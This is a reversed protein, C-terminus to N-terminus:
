VGVVEERASPTLKREYALREYYSLVQQSV